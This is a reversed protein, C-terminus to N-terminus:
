DFSTLSSSPPQGQLPISLSLSAATPKREKSDTLMKSYDENQTVASSIKNYTRDLGISNDSLLLLEGDKCCSAEGDNDLALDLVSAAASVLASAGDGRRLVVAGEATAVARLPLICCVPVVGGRTGSPDGIRPGVVALGASISSASPWKLSSVGDAM